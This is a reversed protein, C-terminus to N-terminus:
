PKRKRVNDQGDDSDAGKISIENNDSSEVSSVSKLGSTIFLKRAAVGSILLIAFSAAAYLGADLVTVDQKVSLKLGGHDATVAASKGVVAEEGQFAKLSRRLMPCDISGEGTASACPKCTTAGEADQYTLPPCINPSCLNDTDCSHGKECQAM